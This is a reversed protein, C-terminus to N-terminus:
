RWENFDSVRVTTYGATWCGTVAFAMHELDDDPFFIGKLNNLIVRFARDSTDWVKTNDSGRPTTILIEM